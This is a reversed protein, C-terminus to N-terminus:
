LTILCISIIIILALPISGYLLVLPPRWSIWYLHSPSKKSVMWDSGYCNKLYSHRINEDKPVHVFQPGFPIKQMDTGKDVKGDWHCKPWLMRPLGLMHTTNTDIDYSVPFVDIFVDWAKPKNKFHVKLMQHTKCMNDKSLIISYRKEIEDEHKLLTKYDEYTIELDIDDDHEIIKGNRVAGLLTGGTAWPEVGVHNCAEQFTGLLEYLQQHHTEITNKPLIVLMVTVYILIGIVVICIGSIKKINM